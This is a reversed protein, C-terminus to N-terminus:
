RPARRRDGHRPVRARRSVDPRRPAPRQGHRCRVALRRAHRRRGEGRGRPVRGPPGPRRRPGAMAPGPVSRVPPPEVAPRLCRDTVNAPGVPPGHQEGRQRSPLGPRVVRGVQELVRRVRQPERQLALPRQRAAPPSPAAATAAFQLPREQAPEAVLQAGREGRDGPVRGAQQLLVDGPVVSECCRKRDRMAASDARSPRRTLSRSSKEAISDPCGAASCDVPAVDRQHEVRRDGHRGGSAASRLHLHRARGPQGGDPGVVVPKLLHEDVQEAVREAVVRRPRLHHDGHGRRRAPCPSRAPRRRRRPSGGSSARATVSAAPWRSGRQCSTRAAPMMRGRRRPGARPEPQGDGAADHGRVAAPQLQLWASRPVQKRTVRGTSSGHCTRAGAPLVSPAVVVRPTVARSQDTGVRTSMTSSSGFM